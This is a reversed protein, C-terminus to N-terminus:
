RAHSKIELSYYKLVNHSEYFFLKLDQSYLLPSLLILLQHSQLVGDLSNQHLKWVFILDAQPQPSVKSWSLSQEPLYKMPIM